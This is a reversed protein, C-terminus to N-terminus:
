QDSGADLILRVREPASGATTAALLDEFRELLEDASAAANDPFLNRLLTHGDIRRVEFRQFVQNVASVFEDTVPDPFLGSAVFAEVTKRQSASLLAIQEALDPDRLNDLLTSRWTELTETARKEIQALRAEASAGHVPGPIHADVKVSSRLRSDDLQMLTKIDTLDARLQAFQGGQLLAVSALKGLSVWLNGDLLRQKHKDGAADLFNHRYFSRAAAVFQKRIDEGRAVLASVAATDIDDAGLAALIDTRLTLADVSAPFEAGFCDVAQRLYGTIEGLKSAAKQLLELRTLESKASKARALTEDDIALKNLKGVSNRAKIDEVVTRLASIRAQREEVLDVLDGGWLGIGEALVREAEVVRTALETARTGFDSVVVATAGTPPVSGPPLGLLDAAAALTDTPLAAPPALHTFDVLEDLSMKALRDLGLADIRGSPYALEAKGLHTLSAAVVVCWAPELHWPAWTRMGAARETLLDSRNLVKGRADALREALAAAFRGDGRISDDPGLLELSSLIKRTATTARGKDALHTLANRVADALNDPTIEVAFAPYGPFREEFHGALIYSSVSRLQDRVSAQPGPVGALWEALSRKEGRYTVTMATPLHIRLWTVMAQHADRAKHEYIPRRDATSERALERAGAYRRLHATFDDDQGELRVFLEDPKEEDIFKPLAYPQLFYLYFDRPPQATSRENPAGMFLYGTRDSNKAPWPLDYKWIRYGSVYPDDRLGLAEEMAVYYAGDLKDDDLSDARQSILQDYDIDKAVDLYIQGNDENRSLFQGSVAGLTKSVITEVTTRLFIADQKPLGPPLLCLQDRLEDATMGIRAHIDDTTLRHVSLADVIRVATEVYQKEPLATAIKTRVVESKDLVEQVEPVMRASADDVLRARYSDISVVGPADGPVEQDARSHIEGEITRLVERKEVLTLQEFTALYAPHIPFLDVFDDIREAMGDYLPTFASLHQRIRDKQASTKPLLRERVVFAVDERAIRVQDFRDKVRRIADAAGSFRPNDFLSEQLGGIMRFRTNKCTEGVERLFALDQILEADKRGRLYDLMEDLVFLLGQDPYVAEFAAMMEVLSDKTNTVKDIPPFDYDVGQAALGKTLETCVIDRLSMASAGIDFRIVQFMGSVPELKSALVANSLCHRLEGFEAVAAVVSMLPTKGTGYTGVIFIGKSSGPADFRLDAMVVEVLQQAMRDSIVYTEVDTRAADLTVSDRVQKVEDLPAPLQVVDSYKM